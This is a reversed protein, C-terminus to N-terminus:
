HLTLEGHRSSSHLVKSESGMAKNWDDNWQGKVTKNLYGADLWEKSDKIWNMVQQDVNVTTAGDEVM